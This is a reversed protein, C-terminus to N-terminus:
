PYLLTRVLPIFDARLAPPLREIDPVSRWAEPAISAISEMWLGTLEKELM